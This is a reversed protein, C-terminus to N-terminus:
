LGLVMFDVPGRTELSLGLFDTTICGSMKGIAIVVAIPLRRLFDKM